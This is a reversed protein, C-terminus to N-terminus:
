VVSKRDQNAAHASAGIRAVLRQSGWYGLTALLLSQTLAVASVITSVDVRFRRSLRAVAASFEFFALPPKGAGEASGSSNKKNM